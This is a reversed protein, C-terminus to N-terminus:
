LVTEMIPVVTLDDVTLAFESDRYSAANYFPLNPTPYNLLVTPEEVRRALTGLSAYQAMYRITLEYDVEKRGLIKSHREKRMDGLKQVEQDFKPNTTRLRRIVDEYDYQTQRFGGGLGRTFTTVDIISDDDLEDQIAKVSALCRNKYIEPDGDVCREIVEPIDDETDAVIIEVKPDFGYKPFTEQIFRAARMAARAQPSIGEGITQYFSDSSEQSYDPCVPTIFRIGGKKNALSDVLLHGLSVAERERETTNPLNIVEPNSGVEAVLGAVSKVLSLPADSLHFAGRDFLVEGKFQELLENRVGRSLKKLIERM